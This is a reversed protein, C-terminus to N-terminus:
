LLGDLNGDGRAGAVRLQRGFQGVHFLGVGEGLAVLFQRGRGLRSHRGPLRWGLSDVICAASILSTSSFCNPSLILLLFSSARSGNMTTSAASRSATHRKKRSSGRNRNSSSLQM